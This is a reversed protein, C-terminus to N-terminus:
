EASSPIKVGRTTSGSAIFGTFFDIYSFTLGKIKGLTYFYVRTQQYRKLASLPCVFSITKYKAALEPTIEVANQDSIELRSSVPITLISKFDFKPKGVIQRRKFFKHNLTVSSPENINVVVIELYNSGNAEANTIENLEIRNIKPEVGDWYALVWRDEKMNDPTRNELDANPTPGKVKSVKSEVKRGFQKAM